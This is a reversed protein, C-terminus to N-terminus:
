LSNVLFANHLILRFGYNTVKVDSSFNTIIKKYESKKLHFNMWRLLIKEPALNM